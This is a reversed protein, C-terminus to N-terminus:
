RSIAFYDYPQLVKRTFDQAAFVQTGLVALVQVRGSVTLGGDGIPLAM